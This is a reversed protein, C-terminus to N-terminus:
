ILKKEKEFYFYQYVRRKNNVRHVKLYPRCFIHTNLKNLETITKKEYYQMRSNLVMIDRTFTFAMYNFLLRRCKKVVYKKVDIPFSTSIYVKNLFSRKYIGHIVILIKYMYMDDELLREIYSTISREYLHVYNESLYNEKDFSHRVFSQVFPDIQYGGFLLTYYINYLNSDTFEVNNYPNKPRYPLCMMSESYTLANKWIRHLDMIYFTYSMSNQIIDIKLKSNYDDLENLVMDTAIEMKKSKKIRIYKTMIHYVCQANMFDDLGDGVALMKKFLKFKNNITLNNEYGIFTRKKSIRNLISLFGM